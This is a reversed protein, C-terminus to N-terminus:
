FAKSHIIGRSFGEQLPNLHALARSRKRYFSRDPQLADIKLLVLTLPRLSFVLSLLFALLIMVFVEAPFSAFLNQWAGAHELPTMSCLGNASFMCGSMHGEPTIQMGMSSSSGLLSAALFAVVILSGFASKM